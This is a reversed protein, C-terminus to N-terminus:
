LRSASFRKGSPHVPDEEQPHCSVKDQKPNALEVMPPAVATIAQDFANGSEDAGSKLAAEMFRESQEPDDPIVNKKRIEEM